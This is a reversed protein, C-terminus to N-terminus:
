AIGGALQGVAQMKQSQAFQQQLEKRETIDIFYMVLGDNEKSRKAEDIKTVNVMVTKEKHAKFHIEFPNISKHVETLLNYLKERVLEREEDLIYDLFSSNEVDNEGVILQFTRNSANIIEAGDTIAIGVPADEFIHEFYLKTKGLAQIIDNGQQLDRTVLYVKNNEKDQMIHRVVVELGGNDSSKLTIKAPMSGTLKGGSDMSPLDESKGNIVHQNFVGNLVDEVKKGLWNSFTKNCFIIESKENLCFYGITSNNIVDLLFNSNTEPSEIKITSPTLDIITWGSFGSHEPIPSASIRWLSTKESNLRMPVDMHSQKTNEVARQLNHIAEVVRPYKGFCFIFDEITRIRFGSFLNQAMRNVFVCKGSKSFVFFAFLSADFGNTAISKQYNIVHNREDMKKMEGFLLFCVLGIALTAVVACYNGESAGAIIAFLSFFLFTGMLIFHKVPM